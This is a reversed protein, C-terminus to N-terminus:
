KRENEATYKFLEIILNNLLRRLNDDQIVSLSPFNLIEFMAGKEHRQNMIYTVEKDNCGLRDLETVVIIDSERIYNLMEQLKLHNNNKGSLKDSFIKTM